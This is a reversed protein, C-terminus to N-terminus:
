ALVGPPMPPLFKADIERLSPNHTWFQQAINVREMFGDRLNEFSRESTPKFDSLKWPLVKANPVQALTPLNTPWQRGMECTCAVFTKSVGVQVYIFGCSLCERCNEFEFRTEQQQKRNSTIRNKLMMWRAIKPFHECEEIAWECMAHFERSNVGEMKRYLVKLFEDNPTKDFAKAVKLVESTFEHLNM